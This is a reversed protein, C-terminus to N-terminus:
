NKWYNTCWHVGLNGERPLMNLDPSNAVVVNLLNSFVLPLFFIIVHVLDPIYFLVSSASFVRVSASPWQAM